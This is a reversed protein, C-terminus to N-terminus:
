DPYCLSRWKGEHGVLHVTRRVAARREGAGFTYEVDLEAVHEQPRGMEPDVWGDADRVAIVSVGELRTLAADDRQARIFREANGWRKQCEPALLRYARSFQEARMLEVFLAESFAPNGRPRSGSAAGREHAAIMSRIRSPRPDAPEDAEVLTEPSGAGRTWWTRTAADVLVREADHEATPDDGDDGRVRRTLSDLLGRAFGM